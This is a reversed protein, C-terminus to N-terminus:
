HSTDRIQLEDKFDKKPKIIPKEIKLRKKKQAGIERVHMLRSGEAM